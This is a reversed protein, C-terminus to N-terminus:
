ELVIEYYRAGVQGPALGGMDPDTGKDTWTWTNDGNYVVDGLAAGDVTDWTRTTGPADATWRITFTGSAGGRWTVEVWDASSTSHVVDVVAMGSTPDLPDLGNAVEYGDSLSDGDTDAKTPDTGHVAVEDGDDLGDDDTDADNPDTGTDGPRVYTGTDTEAEDPLADGDTDLSYEYAGMDYWPAAGGGGNPATPEDYRAYGRLDAELAGNSTATDVCPSGIGVWYIGRAAGVFLPDASINGSSGAFDGDGIDCYSVELLAAGGISIDDANDWLISNTITVAGNGWRVVGSGDNAAVTCNVLELTASGSQWVGHLMNDM